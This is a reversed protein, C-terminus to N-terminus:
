EVGHLVNLAEDLSTIGRIIKDFADQKLTLMRANLAAQKINEVSAKNIVLKKIEDNMELIEFIGTRGKYGTYKCNKCGRSTYFILEENKAYKEFEKIFEPPPVFTERCDNCLMRVLRQAIVAQLTSAILYPEIGMNILRTLSDPANNTHLTSLVFHGTLASRIAIEATEIDRIEGVMMIDPDQRLISRLGTAFTLGVRPNVEIQSINNLQYEVPDEITVINKKISDLQQIAAYLTTTKGSGTPGTVLLIGTNKKLLEIVRNYAEENLGLNELSSLMQTKDFLRMVIKEGFITPSTSVRIDIDRENVKLKIRGDQPIRKESIDLRALVKIRSIISSTFQRPPSQIEYLQGDIRYRIRLRNHQPEIHIDSARDVIAQEIILNVLKIIPAEEATTQLDIYEEEEFEATIESKLANVLETMSDEIGFLQSIVGRLKSQSVLVPSINLGTIQKLEDILYLDTPDVMGVTLMNQIKFIPIVNNTRIIEEPILNVINRDILSVNLNIYPINIRRSILRILEEEKIINEDELIEFIYKQSRDNLTKLESYKADDIVNEELLIDLITLDNM